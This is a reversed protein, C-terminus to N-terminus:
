EKVYTADGFYITNTIKDLRCSVDSYSSGIEFSITLKNGSIKYWGCMTPSGSKHLNVANTGAFFELYEASDSESVYNGSLSTTGCSNLAVMFAMLIVCIFIIVAIQKKTSLVKKMFKAEKKKIKHKIKNPCLENDQITENIQENRSRFNGM